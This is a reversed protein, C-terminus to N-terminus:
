RSALKSGNRSFVISNVLSSHGKLTHVVQSAADWVRVTSDDSGSALKSRDCSFMVSDVLGLYGKLTHEVQGSAVDWVRVTCDGLGSALRSGDRSFVVSWVSGSHGKLIQLTPSRDQEVELSIRVWDIEKQFM